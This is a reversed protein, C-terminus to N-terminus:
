KLHYQNIISCRWIRQSYKHQVRASHLKVQVRVRERSAPSWLKRHPKTPRVPSFQDRLGCPRRWCSQVVCYPGSFSIELVVHMACKRHLRDDLAMTVDCTCLTCSSMIYIFVFSVPSIVINMVTTRLSCGRQKTPTCAHM